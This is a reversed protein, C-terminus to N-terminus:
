SHGGLKLKHNCECHFTGNKYGFQWLFQFLQQLEVGESAGGALQSRVNEQRAKHLPPFSGHVSGQAISNAPCLDVVHLAFLHLDICDLLFMDLTKWISIWVIIINHIPMKKSISHLWLM